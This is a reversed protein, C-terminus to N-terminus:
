AGSPSSRASCSASSSPRCSGGPRAAPAAAASAAGVAVWSADDAVRLASADSVAPARPRALVQAALREFGAPDLTVGLLARIREAQAVGEEVSARQGPLAGILRQEIWRLAEALLSSRADLGVKLITNIAGGADIHIVVSRVFLLLALYDGSTSVAGGIALEPAQFYPVTADPVGRADEVPFNAGFGMLHWRGSPAFLVNAASLRGLHWSPSARHAAQLAKRIGVIFADGAAYPIRTTSRTLREMFCLGDAVADCDFELTPRGAIVRRASVPAVCPHSIAEHARVIADFAREAAPPETARGPVLLVRRTQDSVRVARLVHWAPRLRIVEIEGYAHHLATDAVPGM